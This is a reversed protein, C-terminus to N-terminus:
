AAASGALFTQLYTVLFTFPLFFFTRTQLVTLAAAVEVGVAVGVRVDVVVGVAVPVFVGVSVAVSVAVGAGVGVSVGVWVGSGGSVILKAGTNGSTGGPGNMGPTSKELIV